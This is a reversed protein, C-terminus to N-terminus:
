YCLVPLAAFNWTGAFISPYAATTDRYRAAPGIVQTPAPVLRHDQGSAANFGENASVAQAAQARGILCTLAHSGGRAAAALRAGQRRNFLRRDDLADQAM